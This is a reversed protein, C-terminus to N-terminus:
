FLTECNCSNRLVLKQLVQKLQVKTTRKQQTNSCRVVEMRISFVDVLNKHIMSHWNTWTSRQELLFIFWKTLYKIKRQFSAVGMCALALEICCLQPLDVSFIDVNLNKQRHQFISLFGAIWTVLRLILSMTHATRVIPWNMPSLCISYLYPKRLRSSLSQRLTACEHWCSGDPKLEVLLMNGMTEEGEKNSCM